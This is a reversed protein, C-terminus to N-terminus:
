RGNKFVMGAHKACSRFLDGQWETAVPIDQDTRQFFYKRAPFIRSIADDYKRCLMCLDRSMPVIRDKHGKADAIYLTADAMNVDKRRLATTEQPRLGCCFHMRFVVPAILERPGSLPCPPISDAGQFFQRLENDSYLYPMFPKQRATWGEPISYAKIGSANLYDVLGKLASVRQIRNNESEGDQRCSWESAIEESITESEPFREACFRDFQRMRAHYSSESYGIACKFLIYKEIYDAFKSIYSAKNM